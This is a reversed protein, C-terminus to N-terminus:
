DTKINMGYFILLIYAILLINGFATDIFVMLSTEFFSTIFYVIFVCLGGLVGISTRASAQVRGIHNKMQQYNDINKSLVKSVETFKNTTEECVMFTDIIMNFQQTNCKKKLHKLAKRKNNTQKAEIYCDKIASQLPEDLSPYVAGFIDIISDYQTSGLSCSDLFFLLQKDIRNRRARGLIYMIYFSLFFLLIISLIGLFVTGIYTMAFFVVIGISCLIFLFASESFGPVVDEIGSNSIYKYIKDLLKLKPTDTNISAADIKVNKRHIRDFDTTKGRFKTYILKLINYKKLYALTSFSLVTISIFLVVKLILLLINYDLM